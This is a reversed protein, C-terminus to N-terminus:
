WHSYLQVFGRGVGNHSVSALLLVGGFDLRLWVCTEPRLLPTLSLLQRNVRMLFFFIVVAATSGNM